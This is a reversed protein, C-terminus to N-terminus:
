QKLKEKRWTHNKHAQTKLECCVLVLASFFLFSDSNFEDDDDYDRKRFSGREDKEEKYRTKFAGYRKKKETIANRKVERRWTIFERKWSMLESKIKRLKKLFIFKIFHM